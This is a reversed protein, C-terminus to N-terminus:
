MKLINPWLSHMCYQLKVYCLMLLKKAGPSGQKMNTNSSNESYNQKGDSSSSGSM